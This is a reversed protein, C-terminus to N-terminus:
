CSEGPVFECLNRFILVFVSAFINRQFLNAPRFLDVTVRRKESLIATTDYMDHTYIVYAARYARPALSHRSCRRRKLVRHVTGDMAKVNISAGPCWDKM